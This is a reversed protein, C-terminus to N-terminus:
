LEWHVLGPGSPIHLEWHCHKQQRPYFVFSFIMGTITLVTFKIDSFGDSFKMCTSWFTELVGAIVLYVWEM